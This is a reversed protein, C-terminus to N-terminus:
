KSKYRAKVVKTIEKRAKNYLGIFQKETGRYRRVNLISCQTCGRMARFSDSNCSLCGNLKTMMLVMALHDHESQPLDVVQKVLDDFEEGRIGTLDKLVRPPFLLETDNNYM